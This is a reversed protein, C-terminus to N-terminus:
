GNKKLRMVQINGIKDDLRIQVGVGFVALCRAFHDVVERVTVRGDAPITVVAEGVVGMLQVARRIWKM